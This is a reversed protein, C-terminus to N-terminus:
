AVICACPLRARRTGACVLTRATFGLAEYTTGVITPRAQDRVMFWPFCFAAAKFLGAHPYLVASDRHCFGLLAQMLYTSVILAGSKAAVLNGKDEGSKSPIRLSLAIFGIAICHYTM